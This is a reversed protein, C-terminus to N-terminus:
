IFSKEVDSNCYCFIDVIYLSKVFRILSIVEEFNENDICYLHLSKTAPFTLYTELTSRNFDVVGRLKTDEPTLLVSIRGGEYYHIGRCKM